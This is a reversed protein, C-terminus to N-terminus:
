SRYTEQVAALYISVADVSVRLIKEFGLNQIAPSSILEVSHGFSKAPIIYLVSEIAVFIVGRTM